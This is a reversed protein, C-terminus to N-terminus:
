RGSLISSLLTNDSPHLNLSYPVVLLSECSPLTTIPRPFLHFSQQLKNPRLHSRLTVLFMLHRGPVQQRAHSLFLLIHTGVYGYYRGCALWAQGHRGHPLVLESHGLNRLAGAMSYDKNMYRIILPSWDPVAVLTLTINNQHPLYM